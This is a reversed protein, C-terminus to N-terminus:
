LVKLKEAKRRLLSDVAKVDLRGIGLFQRAPITGTGKNQAVAYQAVNPDDVGIRVAAGTNTFTTDRGGRIIKISRRLTLTRKLIGRSFGGRIKRKETAEQLPTWPEYNPTIARDFRDLTRRLLLAGVDKVLPPLAHAKRITDIRKKLKDAGRVYPTDLTM